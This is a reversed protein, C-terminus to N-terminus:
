ATSRRARRASAWRRASPAAPRASTRWSRTRASAATASASATSPPSTRRSWARTTTPCRSRSCASPHRRTRGSARSRSATSAGVAGRGAARAAGGRARRACRGAARRAPRVGGRPRDRRDRQAVRGRAAGAGAALRDPRGARRAGCRGRRPVAHGHRALRPSRRPGGCRVARLDQPRLVRRLRRGHRGALLRPAPGAPRRRRGRPRGRRPRARRGRRDAAGGGDRQVRGHDHGARVAPPRARRAARRPDRRRHAAIPLITTRNGHRESSQVWPLLNAHHEVDLVLVRGGDPVVGALLNLSDTTNRTIIAVDDPRADVFRAVTQRASEYLATSVQSLYGAGRHVSAYLPLVETVRAAVAELAPASAAYDLNAYVRQTGDVLPVTTTGGVVPLLASVEDVSACSLREAIVTM